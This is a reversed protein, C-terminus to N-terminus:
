RGCELSRWVAEAWARDDPGAMDVVCSAVTGDACMAGKLRWTGADLLLIADGQASLGRHSLREGAGLRAAILRRLHAAPVAAGAKVAAMSTVFVIRAGHVAQISGPHRILSFEAGIEFTWLGTAPVRV